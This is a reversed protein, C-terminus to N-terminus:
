SQVLVIVFKHLSAAFQHRRLNLGLVDDDVQPLMCEFVFDIPSMGEQYMESAFLLIVNLRYTHLECSGLAQEMCKVVEFSNAALTFDELYHPRKEM